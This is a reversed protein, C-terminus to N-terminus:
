PCHGALIKSNKSDYSLCYTDLLVVNGESCCLISNPLENCIAQGNKCYYSITRSDKDHCFFSFGSFNCKVHYPQLNNEYGFCITLHSLLLIEHFPSLASLLVLCKKHLTQIGKM